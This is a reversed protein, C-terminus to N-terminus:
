EAGPDEEGAEDDYWPGEDGDFFAFHELFVGFVVLDRVRHQVCDLVRTQDPHSTEAARHASRPHHPQPPTPPPIVHPNNILYKQSNVEKSKKRKREHTQKKTQEFIKKKM